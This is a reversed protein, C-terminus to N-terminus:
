RPRATRVVVDVRNHVLVVDHSNDVEIHPVPPPTDPRIRAVFQEFAALKGADRPNGRAELRRRLTAPDCRVWVLRVPEGGLEAVWATWAGPDRTQGTFPADLLVPCGSARIQRAAATLAAYEHVKVHQDYWAGEREGHHRGYAALVEVTFGNFLTDKGLVAGPPDLRAALEACVTSKGAGPAGAVVWVAAPGRATMVGLRGTGPARDPRSNVVVRDSARQFPTQLSNQYM